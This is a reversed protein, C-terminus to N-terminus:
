EAAAAPIFGVTGNRMTIQLYNGAIGTVHVMRGRHVQGVVTSGSDAMQYVASDKTLKFHRNLPKVRAPKAASAAAPAAAPATAATGAPSVSTAPPSPLLHPDLARVEAFEADAETKRDPSKSLLNALALHARADRPVLGIATRMESEAEGLKGEKALLAALGLRYNADAPKLAVAARYQEEASGLQSQSEYLSGLTSHAAANMPDLELVRSFEARALEPKQEFVYLNGLAIHVRPDNPALKAAAQYNREAEALQTQQMAQDGTRLYDDVSQRPHCGAALSLALVAAASAAIAYRLGARRNWEM